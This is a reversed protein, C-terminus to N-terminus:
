GQERFYREWCKKSITKTKTEWARLSSESIGTQRAFAARSLGARQRLALIQRAQGEYLFRNYGDLLDTAPVGYLEALNDAVAAPTHECAGTELDIYFTTTVGVREAVERQLLGMQLRCWRLRDPVNDIERYSRYQRTFRQAKPLNPPPILRFRHVALPAFRPKGHDTRSLIYFDPSLRAFVKWKPM